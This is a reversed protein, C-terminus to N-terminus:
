KTTLWIYLVSDDSTDDSVRKSIGVKVNDFGDCEAIFVDSVPTCNGGIKNLRHELEAYLEPDEYYVAYYEEESNSFISSHSEKELVGISQYDIKDLVDKYDSVHSTACGSLVVILPLSLLGSVGKIGLKM